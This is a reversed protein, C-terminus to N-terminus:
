YESKIEGKWDAPYFTGETGGMIMISDAEGQNFYIIISDASASNTGQNIQNEEIRFVSIANRRSIIREPGDEGMSVQITKGKIVNYKNEMSDALSSIQAKETLYIERIKLSDLSFDIKEGNMENKDQWALPNIRLAVTENTVFYTASDCSARVDGKFIRVSDEAVAKKPMMGYYAMKKSTIILTDERGPVNHEFRSNGYIHSENFNAIYHGFDGRLRANNQKDWLYMNKEAEANGERFQYVFKEAYLSDNVGSIKVRGLCHAVRTDSFYLIKDAWLKHHSDDILVNGIFEVLNREEYFIAEDCLMTLTDQYAEVNGTLYRVKEGNIMKGSSKDAHILHLRNDVAYLHSIVFIIFIILVPIKDTM